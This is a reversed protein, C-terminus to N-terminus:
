QQIDSLVLPIFPPQWDLTQLMVRIYYHLSRDGMDAPSVAYLWVLGYGMPGRDSDYTGLIMLDTDGMCLCEPKEFSCWWTQTSVEAEYQGGFPDITCVPEGRISSVDDTWLAAKREATASDAVYVVLNGALLGRGAHVVFVTFTLEHDFPLGRYILLDLPPEPVHEVRLPEGWVAEVDAADSHWPISAFGDDSIVEQSDLSGPISLILSALAATLGFRYTSWRSSM